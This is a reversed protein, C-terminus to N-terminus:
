IYISVCVTTVDNIHTHKYYQIHPEATETHRIKQHGSGSHTKYKMHDFLLCRYPLCVFFRAYLCLKHVFISIKALLQICANLLVFCLFIKIAIQVWVYLMVYGYMHACYAAAEIEHRLTLNFPLLCIDFCFTPNTSFENVLFCLQRFSSHYIYSHILTHM